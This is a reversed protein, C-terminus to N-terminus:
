EISNARYCIPFSTKGLNKEFAFFDQKDDIRILPHTPLRM